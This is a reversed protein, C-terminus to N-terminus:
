SPREAPAAIPRQEDAAYPRRFLPRIATPALGSAMVVAANGWAGRRLEGVIMRALGRRWWGGLNDAFERAAESRARKIHPVVADPWGKMNQAKEFIRYRRSAMLQKVAPPYPTGPLPRDKRTGDDFRRIKATLQPLVIVRCSHIMRIAFDWDQHTPLSTDFPPQGLRELATKKITLCCTAFTKRRTWRPPTPALLAPKDGPAATGQEAFWSRCVLEDELWRESDSIIAEAQPDDDFIALEAKMKGPMWLDDSDLFSIFRGTAQSLGTNRAAGAGGNERHVDQVPHAYAAVVAETDDTSGDDVVIVQVGAVGQAFISDLAEPLYSARNFTPLIVSFIPQDM